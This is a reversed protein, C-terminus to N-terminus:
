REIGNSRSTSNSISNGTSKSNLRFDTDTSVRLAQVSCLLSGQLSIYVPTRGGMGYGCFDLVHIKASSIGVLFGM